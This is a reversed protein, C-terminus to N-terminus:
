QNKLKDLYERADAENDPNCVSCPKKGDKHLAELLNHTYSDDYMQACDRTSHYYRSNSGYYVEITKEYEYLLIDDQTLSDYDLNYSSDNQRLYEFVQDAKCRPCYTYHGEYVETFSVLHYDGEFELCLDTTHAVNKSDVWLYDTETHNLIDLSIVRCNQCAQKGAAAAQSLTHSDAKKFMGTCTDKLHYYTGGDNYFVQAESAPRIEPLTVREPAKTAVPTPKVTESPLPTATPAPTERSIVATKVTEHQDEKSPKETEAETEKYGSLKKFGDLAAEPALRKIEGANQATDGLLRIGARAVDYKSENWIYKLKSPFGGKDLGTWKGLKSLATRSFDYIGDLATNLGNQVKKLQPNQTDMNAVYVLLLCFVVAALLTLLLKTGPTFGVRHNWIMIVGVPYILFLLLLAAVTFGVSTRNRGSNYAGSSGSQYPSRKESREFYGGVRNVRAGSQRAALPSSFIVSQTRQM